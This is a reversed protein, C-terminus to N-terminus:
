GGWLESDVSERPAVAPALEMARPRREPLVRQGKLVQAAQQEWAGCSRAASLVADRTGPVAKQATEVELELQGAIRLWDAVSARVDQERAAWKGVDEDPLARHAHAMADRRVGGWAGWAGIEM